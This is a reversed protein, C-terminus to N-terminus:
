SCAGLLWGPQASLFREGLQALEGQGRPIGPHRRDRGGPDLPFPPEPALPNTKTGGHSVPVSMRPPCM